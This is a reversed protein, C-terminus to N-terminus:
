EWRNMKARSKSWANVVNMTSKFAHVDGGNRRLEDYLRMLAESSERSSRGVAVGHLAQPPHRQVEMLLVEYLRTTGRVRSRVMEEYLAWMIEWQHVYRARQVLLEYTKGNPPTSWAPALIVPLTACPSSASSSSVPSAQAEQAEKTATSSPPEAGSTGRVPAIEPWEKEAVVANGRFEVLARNFDNWHSKARLLYLLENYVDATRLPKPCEFFWRLATEVREQKYAEYQTKTDVSAASTNGAAEAATQGAPAASAPASEGADTSLPPPTAPLHSKLEEVTHGELVYQPNHLSAILSAFTSSEMELNLKTMMQLVRQTAAMSRSRRLLGNFDGVAIVPEDAMAAAATDVDGRMGMSSDEGEGDEAADLRQLAEAIRIGEATRRNSGVLHLQRATAVQELDKVLARRAEKERQIQADFSETHAVATTVMQAAAQEATRSTRRLLAMLTNVTKEEMQYEAFGIQKMVSWVYQVETLRGAQLLCKWLMYYHQGNWRTIGRLNRVNVRRSSTTSQDQANTPPLAALMTKLAAFCQAECSSNAGQGGAPSPSAAAGELAAATAREAGPILVQRCSQDVANTFIHYAKAWNGDSLCDKLMDHLSYRTNSADDRRPQSSRANGRTFERTAPATSPPRSYANSNTNSYNHSTDFSANSSVQPVPSMTSAPPPSSLRSFSQESQRELKAEFEQERQPNLTAAAGIGGRERAIAAHTAKAVADFDMTAFNLGLDLSAPPTRPAAASVSVAGGVGASGTSAQAPTPQPTTTTTTTTTGSSCLRYIHTYAPSGAPLVQLLRTFSALAPMANATYPSTYLYKALDTSLFYAIEFSYFDTSFFSCPFFVTNLNM